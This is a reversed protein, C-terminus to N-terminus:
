RLWDENSAEPDVVQGIAQYRAWYFEVFARTKQDIPKYHHNSDKSLYGELFISAEAKALYHRALREYSELYAAKLREYAASSLDIQLRNEVFDLVGSGFLLSLHILGECYYPMVEDQEMWAVLGVSRKILDIMLAEKFAEEEHLFFSVLGGTTAKFEEINKFQGKANMQIETEEDMFFIHGFEHGITSIEYIKHWLDEEKFLIERSRRLFSDPFIESSLKMFPKHRASQLVRDPFAFIKKGFAKSVSEDNPVVQASFLGGLEAGYYLAPIGIYLQTREISDLCFRRLSEHAKASDLRNLWENLSQAMQEKIPLSDAEQPRAIRLDWEPAVAKRFRDEYYELPHAPQIPATIGMWARDVARWRELLKAPNKELFAEKIALFYAIYAKKAGHIGDGENELEKILRELKEGVLEIEKPFALAYPIARYIGKEDQRPISYSRDSVEGEESVEQASQLLALIKEEDQGFEKALSANIGEILGFQWAEYFRNMAIGVEHIGRLLARYFPTLLEEEEMEKLAEQHARMHFREVWLLVEHKIRVIEEESKQASKLVQMLPGEQLNILRSGLALRHEPTPALKIGELFDDFLQNEKSDGKSLARYLQNIKADREEFLRYLIKLDEKFHEKM